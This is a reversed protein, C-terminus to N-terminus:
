CFFIKIQSFSFSSTTSLIPAHSLCPAVKQASAMQAVMEEEEEEHVFL